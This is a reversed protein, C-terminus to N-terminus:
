ASHRCKPEGYLLDWIAGNMRREVWRVSRRDWQRRQWFRIQRFDRVSGICPIWQTM